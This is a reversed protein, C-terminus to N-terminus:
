RLHSVIYSVVTAVVSSVLSAIALWLHRQRALMRQEATRGSMFAEWEDATRQWREPAYTLLRDEAARLRTEVSGRWRSHEARDDIYMQQLNSVITRVEILLDHDRLWEPRGDPPMATSM